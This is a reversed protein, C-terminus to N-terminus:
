HVMIGNPPNPSFPLFQDVNLKTPLQAPFHIMVQKVNTCSCPKKM